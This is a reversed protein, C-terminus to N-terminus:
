TLTVVSHVLEVKLARKAVMLVRLWLSRPTKSKAVTTAGGAAAVM